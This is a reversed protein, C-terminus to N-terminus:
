ELSRFRAAEAHTQYLCSLRPAKGFEADDVRRGVQRPCLNLRRADMFLASRVESRGGIAWISSIMPAADGPGRAKNTRAEKGERAKCSSLQARESPESAYDCILLAGM